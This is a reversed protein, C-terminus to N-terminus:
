SVNKTLQTLHTVKAALVNAQFSSVPFQGSDRKGWLKKEM